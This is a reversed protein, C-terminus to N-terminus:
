LGRAVKGVDLLTAGSDGDERWPGWAKLPAGVSGYHLEKGETAVSFVNSVFLEPINKEYNSHVQDAGDFWSVAKRVPTKAEIIVLPFGNILLVLDPIRQEQSRFHYQNTVVCHNNGPEEFDLLRVPVHEHNKGFPMTKEGRLWN